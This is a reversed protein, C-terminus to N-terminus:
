IVGKLVLTEEDFISTSPVILAPRIGGSNSCYDNSITGYNNIYWIYNSSGKYPSRLWWMTDINNLKAIRLSDNNDKFYELSAGEALIYSSSSVGYGVECGSLLFVKTSLGDTGSAVSGNGNGNVYPIKVNKIANQVKADFLNLFTGNLYNHIASNQYNNVNSTHWQQSAYCNKRLLWLGDCSVDYLSSNSPIGHNVVLYEVPSGNEMLKVTSGVVLDSALIGNYPVELQPVIGSMIVKGM